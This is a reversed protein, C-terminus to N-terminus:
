EMVTSARKKTVKFNDKCAGWSGTATTKHTKDPHHKEWKSTDFHNSTIHRGRQLMLMHYTQVLSIIELFIAFCMQQLYKVVASQSLM